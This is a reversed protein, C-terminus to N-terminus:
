HRVRVPVVWAHVHYYRQLTACQANAQFRNAFEGSLWTVGNHLYYVRYHYHVPHRHVASATPHYGGAETSEATLGFSASLVTLILALNRM